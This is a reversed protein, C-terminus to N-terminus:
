GRIKLRRCRERRIADGILSGQHGLLKLNHILPLHSLYTVGGGEDDNPLGAESLLRRVIAMLRRAAAPDTTGSAIRALETALEVIDTLDGMRSSRDVRCRGRFDRSQM